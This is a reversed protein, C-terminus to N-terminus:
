SFAKEVQAKQFFDLPIKSFDNEILKPPNYFFHSDIYQLNQRLIISNPNTPISMSTYENLNFLPISLFHQFFGLFPKQIHHSLFLQTSIDNKDDNQPDLLFSDNLNLNQQNRFIQIFLEKVSSAIKDTSQYFLLALYQIIENAYMIMAKGVNRITNTLLSIVKSIFEDFKSTTLSILSSKYTDELRQYLDLYNQNDAFYGENESWNTKNGM